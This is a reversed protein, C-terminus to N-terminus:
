YFPKGLLICGTELGRYRVAVLGITPLKQHWILWRRADRPTCFHRYFGVGRRARAVGCGRTLWRLEYFSFCWGNNGDGLWATSFMSKKKHILDIKESRFTGRPNSDAVRKRSSVGRRYLSEPTICPSKKRAAAPDTATACHSGSASSRTSACRHRGSPASRASRPDTSRSSISVLRPHICAAVENNKKANQQECKNM